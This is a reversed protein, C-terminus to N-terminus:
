GRRDTRQRTRMASLGAFRRKLLAVGDYVAPAYLLLLLRWSRHSEVLGRRALAITTARDGRLHSSRAYALFHRSTMRRLVGEYGAGMISRLQAYFSALQDIQRADSLGNWQGGPHVRYAALRDPLYGVIGKQSLVIYLPWDAFECDMYWAPLTGLSRLRILVSCQYVFNNELLDSLSYFRVGSPGNAQADSEGELLIACDHCCMSCEPHSELFQVQKQLKHPSVWYDDGDLYALYEGRAAEIGRLTVSNDNLNEESLMLRIKDPYRAQYAM